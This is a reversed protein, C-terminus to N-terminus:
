LYIWKGPYIDSSSSEKGEESPFKTVGYKWIYFLYWVWIECWVHKERYLSKLLNENWGNSPLKSKQRGPRRAGLEIVFTIIKIEGNDIKREKRAIDWRAIGIAKINRLQYSICSAAWIIPIAMFTQNVSEQRLAIFHFEQSIWKLVKIASIWIQNPLILPRHFIHHSIWERALKM